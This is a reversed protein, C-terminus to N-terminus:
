ANPLIHSISTSMSGMTAPCVQMSQTTCPLIPDHASVKFDQFLWPTVDSSPLPSRPRSSSPSSPRGDTSNTQVSNHRLKRSQSSVSHERQTTVISVESSMSSENGDEGFFGPLKKHKNSRGYSTRSTATTSNQSSVTTASALSPRRKDDSYIPDISDSTGTDPRYSPPRQSKKPRDGATTKEANGGNVSPPNANLWPAIQNESEAPSLTQKVQGPRQADTHNSSSFDQGCDRITAAMGLDFPSDPSESFFTSLSSTGSDPAMRLNTGNLDNTGTRLQPPLQPKRSGTDPAGLVKDQLRRTGKLAKETAHKGPYDRRTM